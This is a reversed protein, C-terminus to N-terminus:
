SHGGILIESFFLISVNFRAKNRYGRVLGSMACIPNNLEEACANSVRAVIANAMGLCRNEIEGAM